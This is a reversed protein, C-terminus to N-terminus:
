QRKPSDELEWDQVDLGGQEDRSVLVGRRARRAGPLTEDFECGALSVFGWVEFPLDYDPSDSIKLFDTAGGVAIAGHGMRNSEVPLAAPGITASADDHHSRVYEVFARAENNTFFEEVAMECYFRYEDTADYGTIVRAYPIGLTGDAGFLLRAREAVFWHIDVNKYGHLNAVRSRVEFLELARDTRLAAKRRQWEALHRKTDSCIKLGELLRAEREDTMAGGEVAFAAV